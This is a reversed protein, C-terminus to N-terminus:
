SEYDDLSTMGDQWLNEERLYQETGPHVPIDPSQVILDTAFEPTLKQLLAHYTQVDEYNEMTIRTMEYVPEDEIETPVSIYSALGAANISNSVDNSFASEPVEAFLLPFGTQALDDESIGWDVVDVEATSDIQSSWSILSEQNATFVPSIDIRGERMAAALDGTEIFQLDFQETPNEIGATQFMMLATDWGSIGRPGWSMSTGEPIDELTEVDELGAGTRKVFGLDLTFLTFTQCLTVEIPPDNYPEAQRNCNWNSLSTQSAFDIDGKEVLRPNATTGGTTQASLNLLDSRENIVTSIAVGGAHTATESGSTGLTYDYEVEGSSDDGNGNGNENGPNGDDGTCGAIGAIGAIGGYQMLTRRDIRPQKDDNPMTRKISQTLSYM